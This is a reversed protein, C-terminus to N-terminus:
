FLSIEMWKLADTIIQMANKANSFNSTKYNCANKYIMKNDNYIQLDEM